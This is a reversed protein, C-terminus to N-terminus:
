ITGFFALGVHADTALSPPLMGTLASTEDIITERRIRRVTLATDPISMGISTPDVATLTLAIPLSPVSVPFWNCSADNARLGAAAIRLLCCGLLAEHCVSPRAFM